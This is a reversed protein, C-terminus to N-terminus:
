RDRASAGTAPGPARPPGPPPTSPRLSASLRRGALMLLLCGALLSLAAPEPVFHLVLTSASATRRLLSSGGAGLSVAVISPAVLTVSGAGGATLDNAGTFMATSPITRSVSFLGTATWTRTTWALHTYTVTVPGVLPNATVIQSSVSVGVSLPVSWMVLPIGQAIFAFTAGGMGRNAVGDVLTISGSLQKDVTFRPPGPAGPDFLVAWGVGPLITVAATYSTGTSSGSAFFRPDAPTVTFTTGELSTHWSASTLTGARASGATWVLIAALILLKQM